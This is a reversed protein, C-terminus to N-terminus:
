CVYKEKIKYVGRRIREAYGLRALRAAAMRAYHEDLCSIHNRMIMRLVPKDAYRKLLDVAEDESIRGQRYGLDVLLAAFTFERQGARNMMRIFSEIDFRARRINANSYVYKGGLMMRKMQNRVRAAAFPLWGKVCEVPIYMLGDERTEACHDVYRVYLQARQDDSLTAEFIKVVHPHDFIPSAFQRRQDDPLVGDSVEILLKRDIM